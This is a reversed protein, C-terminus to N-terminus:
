VSRDHANGERIHPRNSPRNLSSTAIMVLWRLSRKVGVAVDGM